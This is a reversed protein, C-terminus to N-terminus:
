PEIQTVKAKPKADDQAVDNDVDEEQLLVNGFEPSLIGGLAFKGWLLNPTFFVRLVVNQSALGVASFIVLVVGLVTSSPKSTM